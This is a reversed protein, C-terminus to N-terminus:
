FDTLEPHQRMYDEFDYLTADEISYYLSGAPGTESFDRNKLITVRTTNRTVADEALKDRELAITQGAAKVLFSSGQADDETLPENANNAGKRVHSVVIPTIGYEKVLRKLWTAIEEQEAVTLGSLLDSYPDIILVDVGLGIIMELVKEKVQEINAGRDDCVFFRSSGDPKEFLAKAKAANVPNELVKRREDADKIRHLPVRLHYSLLNRSYKPATAELSLVGVVRNPENLAWWETLGSMLTTKGISTKALILTIEQLVLGGGFMEAAKRLFPPLSLMPQDLNDLAAKYLESSAHVGAPTYPKAAWFDSIFEQEKGEDLYKNPDKLRMQMIFTRGRPLVKVLDDVAKQGAADADMCIVIKKFQNFFAYQNRAQKYCGAEGITPSVVAIPDYQKNKQADSLMQFAALQDHEGGVIVVTHSFTKFRHQGFLDCTKGAEGYPVAFEKPHKRRKYGSLSGDITCPYLVEGISGDREDYEYRVGFWRSIDTRIGRYGKSDLGTREKIKDHVLENFEQGLIDEPVSNLGRRAKEEESLETYDCAFCYKGGDDYVALNDASTDNGNRACRPCQEKAVVTGM